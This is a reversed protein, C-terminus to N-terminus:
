TNTTESEILESANFVENLKKTLQSIPKKNKKSLEHVLLVKDILDIGSLEKSFKNQKKLVAEIDELKQFIGIKHRSLDRIIEDKVDLRENLRTNMDKLRILEKSLRKNEEMTAMKSNYCTLSCIEGSNNYINANEAVGVGGKKGEFRM